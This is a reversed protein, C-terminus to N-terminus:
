AASIKQGVLVTFELEHEVVVEQEEVEEPEIKESPSLTSLSAFVM